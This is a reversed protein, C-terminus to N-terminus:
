PDIGIVTTRLRLTVPADPHLVSGNQRATNEHSPIVPLGAVVTTAFDEEKMVGSLLNPLLVRNYAPRPEAAPITPRVRRAEPDPRRVEEAFRAAAMGHGAVVVHLPSM